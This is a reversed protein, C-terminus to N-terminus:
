PPVSCDVVHIAIRRREEETLNAELMRCLEEPSNPRNGAPPAPIRRKDGFWFVVYIGFGSARPDDAYRTMLQGRTAKWLEGHRDRKAEIPVGKLVVSCWLDSRKGDVHRTEPVCAIGYRLLRTRLQDGLTDRCLEEVRPEIPRSYADCNWYQLRLNLDSRHVHAALESLEDNVIAAIDSANGPPGQQLASCVAEWSPQVFTADRRAVGQSVQADRLRDLWPSLSSITALRRLHVAAEEETRGALEEILSRVFDAREMEPSVWHSGMAREPTCGVAMVEILTALEKASAAAALKRKNEGRDLFRVVRRLREPRDGTYKAVCDVFQACDLLLAVALWKARQPGDMRRAQLKNTALARLDQPAIVHLAALLLDDLIGQATRGAGTPFGTLIAALCRRMIPIRAPECVFQAIVASDCTGRTTLIVQQLTEAVLDPHADACSAAWDHHEDIGHVFHAALLARLQEPELTHVIAPNERYRLEIGILAPLNLTMRQGNRHAKLTETPSPLDDRDMATKLAHLAAEVLEADGAFLEHLRAQPSDGQADFVYGLYTNAILDLLNLPAKEEFFDALHKRFEAHMREKDRQRSRRDEAEELKWEWQKLDCTLLNTLREQWGRDEALQECAALLGDLSPDGPAPLTEVARAFCDIAREDDAQARAKGLWWQCADQPMAAGHLRATARWIPRGAEWGQALALDLLAYFRFPHSQLWDRIAVADDTELLSQGHRGCAADLWRMLQEDPIRDGLDLLVKSLVSGFPGTFEHFTRDVRLEPRNAFADLIAPLREVPTMQELRQRWFLTYAGLLNQNKRVHLFQPVESPDVVRPYLATLMEGLLQDDKDQVASSNIDQLLTRVDAADTPTTRLYAALARQRVYDQWSADRVVALLVNSLSPLTPALALGELLLLVLLQHATSRDPVKLRMEISPAMDPTALAAFGARDASRWRVVSGAEASRALIGLLQEKEAVSFGRADGYLLVGLPDLQSCTGRASPSLAALWANLGRMSSVVGGDAGRILALVRRLSLDGQLRDALYHAALFEAVTRHVPAFVGADIEKFLLRSVAAELPHDEPNPLENLRVVRARTEHDRSFGRLDSILQAASLFGAADLLDTRSPASDRTAAVHEPNHELAMRGCALDYVERRTAPWENSKGVAKALMDLTQPNYLLDQLLHREAAAVFAEADTVRYNARLIAYVDNLTLPQLRFVVVAQDQPLLAQLKQVDPQGLWDAGRCSIRFRSCRLQQLKSRIQDLPSRADIAGARTEDLGDIFLPARTGILHSQDLAVFDGAGVYVGGCARAEEQFQRSKGSGPDGLLAYATLTRTDEPSTAGANADDEGTEIRRWERSVVLM